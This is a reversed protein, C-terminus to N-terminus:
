LAHNTMLEAQAHIRAKAAEWPSPIDRGSDLAVRRDNLVSAHWTPLNQLATPDCCLSEWLAEMALLRERLPLAVLEATEM